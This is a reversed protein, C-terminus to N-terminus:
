TTGRGHGRRVPFRDQPLHLGGKPASTFTADLWNKVEPHTTDLAYITKGWGEIAPSPGAARPSWGIRTIPSSGRHRRVRQLAGDLDRGPIGKEHHGRGPRRAGSLRAQGVDLRRHGDRLRRRGPLCRLPLGEPGRRRRSSTRSSTRGASSGSTTTGAAGASPIGPISASATPGSSSAATLRSSTRSPAARSSRWPSSRCPIRRVRRRFLRGMRRPRRRRRHLVSPRHALDPLRGPRRGLGRFLRQRARAPARGPAALFSLPSYDRVIAELEPFRTAPTVREMPGWSQWNNLLFASPAPARFVEIRGPGGRSRARQRFVRAGDKRRRSRDPVQRFAPGTTRRPRAQRLAPYTM